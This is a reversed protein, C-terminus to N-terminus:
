GIEPSVPGRGQGPSPRPPLAPDLFVRFDEVRRIAAAPEPADRPYLTTVMVALAEPVEQVLANLVRPDNDVLLVIPGRRRIWPVMRIKHEIDNMDFRPKM